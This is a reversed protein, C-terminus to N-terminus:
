QPTLRGMVRDLGVLLFGAGLFGLGMSLANVATAAWGIRSVDMFPYAYLGDAAGRVLAYALYALPVMAWFWPDSWQLRGKPALTLWFLPVLVPTVSHLIFDALIAGGSLEFIGRLLAAYVIGVLLMALTVGGLMRPHFVRQQGLALGTFIIATTLNALVTFYRLMVWVTVGVLGVQQFSAAFQVALGSWATVAVVGAALRVLWAIRSPRGAQGTDPAPNGPRESM